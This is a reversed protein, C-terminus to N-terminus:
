ISNNSYASKLSADGSSINSQKREVNDRTKSEALYSDIILNGDLNIFLYDNKVSWWFNLTLMSKIYM